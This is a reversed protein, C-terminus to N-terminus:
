KVGYVFVTGGALNAGSEEIFVLDTIASTQNYAGVNWQFSINGAGTYVTEVSYGSILKFTTTNQYDNVTYCALGDAITNSVRGTINLYTQSFTTITYNYDVLVNKYRQNSDSNFRMFLSRDQTTPQFDRVVIYLDTYTGSLSITVSAGSLTTGGSNILTYAGGAAPAAWKLGTAEASDVSLLYGATSAVALTTSADTGNGVVLTGKANPATANSRSKTM